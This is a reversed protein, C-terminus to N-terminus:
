LHFDEEILRIISRCSDESLWLCELLKYELMGIVYGALVDSVYHRGLLIRSLCVLLTWVIIALVFKHSYNFHVYFFVAVLGARTAHGSPFSFKDVSVTFFMDMQNVRPRERKVLSKLIFSVVLDLFIGTLMFSCFAQNIHM